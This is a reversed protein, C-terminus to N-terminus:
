YVVVKEGYFDKPHAKVVDCKQMEMQRSSTEEVKM